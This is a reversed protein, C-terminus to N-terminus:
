QLPRWRAKEDATVPLRHTSGDKPFHVMLIVEDVIFLPEEVVEGVCWEWEENWYYELRMGKRIQRAWPPLTPAGVKLDKEDEDQRATILEALSMAQQRSVKENLTQLVFRMRNVADTMVLCKCRADNPFGAVEAALFSLCYYQEAPTACFDQLSVSVVDVIAATEEAARKEAARQMFLDVTMDAAISQELPSVQQNIELAAVQQKAYTKMADLLQDVLKSPSLGAYLSDISIAAAAPEVLGQVVDGDELEDVIVVPYPITSKVEKIVFRWKGQALVMHPQAEDNAMSRVKDNEDNNEDPGKDLLLVHAACGIAGVWSDNDNPKYAVQGFIGRHEDKARQVVLQHIPLSLQMGYVSMTSLERPLHDSPLPILFSDTEDDSETLPLDLLILEINKLASLRTLSADHCSSTSHFRRQIDLVRICNFNDPCEHNRQYKVVGVPSTFSTSAYILGYLMLSHLWSKTSTAM